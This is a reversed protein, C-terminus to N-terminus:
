FLKMSCYLFRVEFEKQAAEWLAYKTWVGIKHRQRRIQDEFDKRKTQQYLMLEESDTILVKPPKPVDELGREKSERLLQEATIQIPAPARNKPQPIRSM